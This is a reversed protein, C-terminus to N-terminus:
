QLPNRRGTEEWEVVSHASHVSFRSATQLGTQKRSHWRSAPPDIIQPLRILDSQTPNPRILESGGPNLRISDSPGPHVRIRVARRHDFKALIGSHAPIERTPNPRILDSQTPNPRIPYRPEPTSKGNRRAPRPLSQGDNPNTKCGATLPIKSAVWQWQFDQPLKENPNTEYFRGERRPGSPVSGQPVTKSTGPRLAAPSTDERGPAPSKENRASANGKPKM